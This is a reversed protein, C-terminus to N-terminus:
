PCGESFLGLYTAVDFFDLLGDGNFDAVMDGASFAALFAAVDFFDLLGDGNMDPLCPVVVAMDRLYVDEVANTDTEILSDALTSFAIRLGDASVSPDSSAANGQRGESSVSIRVTEIADPEDYIGDMDTDRDHRFADMEANTDRLVLETATSQFVVFRGDASIRGGLSLPPLTPTDLQGGLADVSIRSTINTALSRVFVDEAHNTDGIVLLASTSDFSITSGDGSIRVGESGRDTPVGATSISVRTTLANGEDYIGNGDPDRDHLLADRVGTCTPCELGDYSPEDGPVLNDAKTRYIVFRGDDSVRPRDSGYNGETGDDAVSLRTTLGTVLDHAFVDTHHNTDGIVLNTAESHFVVHRGDASIDPRGSTFDGPDGFSSVSVRITTAGPEDFIGNGDPDRDRVFVDQWGTCTPCQDMDFTDTDGVVLNSAKSSFTVFRGGASLAPRDSDGNGQLGDIGVSLLTTTGLVLDRVFVQDLGNDAGPVLNTSSSVFAVFRGDPSIRPRTSPGNGPVGLSSVSARVIVENGEDFIGNGDPDRDHVFIDRVGACTPCNAADFPAEDGAVLNWADSYFAVFRGDASISPRDSDDNSEAGFQGVSIRVVSGTLRDRVFVDSDNNTDVFGLDDAESVFAVYRGDSSLSSRDSGPGAPVTGAGTSDVSVRVTTGLVRDHVFEDTAGNTDGSVLNSADSSFEIFRGDASISPSISAANGSIGATSVSVKSLVPNTDDFIGNGDPDRDRVYVDRTSNGGPVLNTADSQFAVFRGDGSLAPFDSRDNAVTGFASTDAIMTQGTTRDHIYVHRQGDNVGTVLNTATSRFAVFRGDGSLAPRTSLDNAAVGTSSVSARTTLGNNEDYIGNGDPDRDHVFIDRFGLCNPCTDPDWTPDDGAVLNWADSYFAVFRGDASISPRDSKGNGELGGPGVSVRVVEGTDNNRVFIDEVGNLDGPVLESAASVFATFRGDDSIVARDSVGTGQVGGASESIRSTTQANVAGTSIGIAVCFMGAIIDRRM